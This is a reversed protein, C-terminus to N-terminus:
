EVELIHLEPEVHQRQVTTPFLGVIVRPEAGVTTGSISMGAPGSLGNAMLLRVANKLTAEDRASFMVRVVLELPDDPLTAVSGALSNLGMFQYEVREIPLGRWTAEIMAKLQEFKRWAQPYAVTFILERLYGELRGFNLKLATPRPKGTVGSVRVRDDGLDELHLTTFDAIVDPTMYNAPDHIEYLLQEKVTGLNVVGPLGATKTLIFSGDAEVHAIPYGLRSLDYPDIADMAALSNGGVVQATCELLHGAVIGSALKDWDDWAWGYHAIMPALYLCPDAVRGTVVIHAGQKLAEVIAEAGLYANGNVLPYESPDLAQGTELHALAEGSARLADLSPLLDDGTIAAIKLGHLGLKHATERIAQAAGLPNLGGGNTILPVGKKYALPLIKSAILSIDFTYGRAPDKLRDKQLIALTLEALAEFCIVDVQNDELMPLAALVNDGYYGQASGIRLTM